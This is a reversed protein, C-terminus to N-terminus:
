ETVGIVIASLGLAKVFLDAIEKAKIGAQFYADLQAIPTEVLNDWARLASEKAAMTERHRVDIERFTQERQSAQLAQAQLYAVLAKYIERKADGSTNRINENWPKGLACNPIPNENIRCEIVSSAPNVTFTDCAEGPWKGDPTSLVAFSCMADAFELWRQGEARFGDYKAKLIDVREGALTRLRKAYELKLIQHRMEILLNGVSPTKASEILDKMDGALSPLERAIVAAKKIDDDEPDITGGATATLLTTINTIKENALVGADVKDLAAKTTVVVKLAIAAADELAKKTEKGSKEAENVREQAADYDVRAKNVAKKLEGIKKERKDVETKATEWATKANGTKGSPFASEWEGKLKGCSNKYATYNVKAIELKEETLDSPWKLDDPLKVYHECDPPIVKGNELIRRIRDIQERKRVQVGTYAIQSRRLHRIASDGNAKYDTYGLTEIRQIAENILTNAMPENSDTMILLAFDLQLQNNDRVTKIEETLLSELNKKEVESIGLVDAKGYNGKIGATLEAKPADHLRVGAACGSLVLAVCVCWLLQGWKRIKKLQM